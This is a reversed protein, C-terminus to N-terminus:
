FQEPKLGFKEVLDGINDELCRQYQDRNSSIKVKSLKKYLKEEETEEPEEDQKDPNDQSESRNAKIKKDLIYLKMENVLSAYYLKFHLRCDELDYFNKVSLVKKLDEPVIKRVKLGPKSELYVLMNEYLTKISTKSAQLKCWQEDFKYITWLDKTDDFNSSISAVYERRYAAIFPVELKENRICKLAYKIDPKIVESRKGAIPECNREQTSITPQSFATHFIWESEQELEEENADTVPVSRLQFREPEDKARIRQDNATMHSRELESPEYIEYISKKGGKKKRPRVEGTEDEEDYDEEYDEEDDYGDYDDADEFDFDVGFIEQAQQMASDTYKAGKKKAKRHIPQDNDDVIFNDDSDSEDEDIALDMDQNARQQNGEDEDSDLLEKRGFIEDHIRRGEDVEEDESDDVPVAKIRKLKKKKDFRVGLNEQVLDLDDEDLSSDGEDDDDDHSRKTGAEDDSGEDDEEEEDNILDKMEERAKEEDEDDEEESSDVLERSKKKNKANKNKVRSPLEDQSEEDSSSAESAEDDIFDSM